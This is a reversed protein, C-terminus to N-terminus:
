PGVTSTLYPSQVFMQDIDQVIRRQNDTESGYGLVGGIVGVWVTPVKKNADDPHNPDTVNVILSGLDASVVYPVTSASWYVSYYSSYYPYYYAGWTPYWYDYYVGTLTTGMASVEFFLDPKGEDPSLIKRYGRANMNTEIQQLVIAQTNQSMSITNTSDPDQIVAVKDPLAYTRLSAFDFGDLPKTVVIDTEDAEIEDYDCASISLVAMALSLLHM